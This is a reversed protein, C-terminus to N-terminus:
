KEGVFKNWNIKVSDAITYDIKERFIVVIGQQEIYENVITWEIRNLVCNFLVMGENLSLYGKIRYTIPILEKLFTLIKELRPKKDQLTIENPIQLIIREPAEEPKTLNTQKIDNFDEIKKLNKFKEILNLFRDNSLNCYSTMFYIARNNISQIIQIIEEIRDQSVLDIKNVFVIDSFAIQRKLTQTTEYLDFFNSADFIGIAACSHINFKEEMKSIIKLDTYFHFPDAIGSSEIILFEPNKKLLFCVTEIFQDHKCSCFISGGAIEKYIYNKEGLIQGDVDIQGFENMLVAIKISHATFHSVLQKLFTTKGSGLFGTLIIITPKFGTTDIHNQDM